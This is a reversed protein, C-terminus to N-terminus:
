RKWKWLFVDLFVTSIFQFKLGWNCYYFYFIYLWRNKEFNELKLIKWMFWCVEILEYTKIIYLDFFMKYFLWIDFLIIQIICWLKNKQFSGTFIIKKEFYVVFLRFIFKQFILFNICHLNIYFCYLHSFKSLKSYIRKNIMIKQKAFISMITRVIYFLYHCRYFSFM